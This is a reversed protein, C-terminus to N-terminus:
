RDRGLSLVSPEGRSVDALPVTSPIGSPATAAVRSPVPHVVRQQQAAVAHQLNDIRSELQPQWANIDTVLATGSREVNVVFHEVDDSCSSLKNEMVKLM